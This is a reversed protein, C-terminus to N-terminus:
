GRAGEKDFIFAESIEFIAEEVTFVIADVMRYMLEPEPLSPALVITVQGEGVAYGLELHASRGCPLLLVTCDAGSLAAMDLGFGEQAIPHEIATRFQQPTWSQWNPDIERWNFGTNGPAPNRFDYTPFGAEVLKAHVEPQMPNRWSSALYIRPPARM